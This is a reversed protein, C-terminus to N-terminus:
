EAGGYKQLVEFLPAVDSGELNKNAAMTLAEHVANLVEGRYQEADQQVLNKALLAIEKPDATTQLVSTMASVAEPGGIQQLADFMAARASTYGLMQGGKQGFDMDVSKQLFERIAAVGTAGQQVLQLLNTKWEAAQEATPSSSQDLRTLSAVLARSQVTPEPLTTTALSPPPRPVRPSASALISNSPRPSVTSIGPAPELTAEPQAATQTTLPARPPHGKRLFVA